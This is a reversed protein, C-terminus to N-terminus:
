MIVDKQRLEAVQSESLGLLEQLVYANHEGLLPAHRTPMDYDSMKWPAGVLELRGLEPHDVAVFADRAQLHPDAYLDRM